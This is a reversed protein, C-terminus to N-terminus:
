PYGKKPYQNERTHGGRWYTIAHETAKFALPPLTDSPSFFCAEAADDAAQLAGGTIRGQYIIVIDAGRAHERGAVVDIIGTVEADLGTEERCERIAAAAPTEGYDVFGAPLSWCGAQPEVARQVLLLRHAEDTILIASAVKHEQFIVHKCADCYRRIQGFAYHDRLAAGCQPCFNLAPGYENHNEPTTTDHHAHQHDLTDANNNM